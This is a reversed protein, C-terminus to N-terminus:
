QKIASVICDGINRILVYQVTGNKSKKDKAIIDALDERNWRCDVRLGIRLFDEMLGDATGKKAIGEQESLQAAMVIGTAVAQGHSTRRHFLSHASKYEIAHAFTHGLNLIRREGCEMFDREVISAKIEACRRILGELTDFDTDADFKFGEVAKNYAQADGIIFTKLMEAYGSIFEKWPLTRIFRPNVFTFEPLLFTGCMNKYGDINCGTKGGISADTQALLTTPVNAYRVGRKYTSAAFGVSDTTVGGGIAVVLADRDAGAGILWRQIRVVTAFTKLRESMKLNLVGRVAVGKEACFDILPETVYKNVKRDAVFFVAPYRQLEDALPAFNDSYIINIKEVDPESEDLCLGAIYLPVIKRALIVIKCYRQLEPHASNRGSTRKSAKTASDTSASTEFVLPAVRAPEVGAWPVSFDALM